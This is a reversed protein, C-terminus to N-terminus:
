KGIFFIAAWHAPAAAAKNKILASQAERFATAAPSGAAFRRQFDAFLRNDTRVSASPAAYLVASKGSQFFSQGPSPAKRGTPPTQSDENTALGNYVPEKGGAEAPIAWFPAAFHYQVAYQKALYPLRAYQVKEPKGKFASTLLAEFPIFASEHHPIVVLRNKGSLASKVQGVLQTYLLAAYPLYDAAYEQEVAHAYRRMVETLDLAGPGADASRLPLAQAKFDTRTLAFVYLQEDSLFYSLLATKDDLLAQIDAVAAGQRSLRTFYDHPAQTRLQECFSFFAAKREALAKVKTADEPAAALELAAERLQLRLQKEETALAHKPLPPLAYQLRMVTIKSREAWEFAAYLEGISMAANVAETAIAAIQKKLMPITNYDGNLVTAEDLLALATQYHKLAEPRASILGSQMFYKAKAAHVQAALIHDLPQLAPDPDSSIEDNHFGPYLAQLAKQIHLAAAITEKNELTNKSLFLRTLATEIRAPEPGSELEILARIFFSRANQHGSEMTTIEGLANLLMAAQTSNGGSRQVVQLAVLLEDKADTFRGLSLYFRGLKYQAATVNPHYQGEEAMLSELALLYHREAEGFNKMGTYADAIMGEILAFQYPEVVPLAKAQLLNELAKEFQGLQLYIAGYRMFNESVDDARLQDRIAKSRGTADLAQEYDWLRMYNQSIGLWAVSLDYSRRPNQAIFQEYTSISERFHGTQFLSDALAISQTTGPLAACCLIIAPLLRLVGPFLATYFTKSM